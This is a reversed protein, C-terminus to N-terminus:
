PEGEPPAGAPDCAADPKKSVIVRAPRLVRDRLRFGRAVQELVTGPPHADSPQQLLAEHINPDFPKHLADITELGYDGLAKVLNRHVLRIGEIVSVLNDPKEAAALSREFDDVVGLLAKMLDANAFRIAESREVASRRQLNQFDARARLLSEELAAIKARFPDDPAIPEAACETSAAPPSEGATVADCVAASPSSEVMTQTQTEAESVVAETTDDSRNPKKM